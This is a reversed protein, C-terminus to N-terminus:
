SIPACRQRWCRQAQAIENQLAARYEIGIPVASMLLLLFALSGISFSVRKKIM